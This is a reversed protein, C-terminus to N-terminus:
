RNLAATVVQELTMVQGEAWAMAFTAEDLRARVVAVTRDYDARETLIWTIWPQAEAVSLLRAAQALEQHQIMVAALGVLNLAVGQGAGLAYLLRTSEGFRAAADALDHQELMLLGTDYLLWATSEQDGAERALVLGEAFLDATRQRAGQALALQGLRHLAWAIRRRDDLTRGMALSEEYCSAASRLDSRAMAVDGLSLLLQTTANRDDVVRALTLGETCLTTARASDGRQLALEGLDNLLLVIRRPDGLARALTLSEALLMEARVNDEQVHALNGAGHLAKMRAATNAPPPLDTAHGPKAGGHPPADASVLARELWQRGESLHGRKLWFDTLMGGLRLAVEPEHKMAWALAARLNDHDQELRDLWVLQDSASLQPEAVEALALYYALHRHRLRALEASTELRERAYEHITELMTFRPEGAVGESQRVLSQDLLATLGDLVDISLDGEGNCVTGAAAETWGGVFVALRTFLTQQGGDLVNYSWDITNRLTQQRAPLDRAGGTLLQLRNELRVLLTAPTFLRIRAAALEIALPLGDVRQCIEAVTSANAATLSFTPQVAKAREVFLTVAPARAFADADMREIRDPLALPLVPIQQEGRVRLAARSTILVNLRFCAALLEAVLPAADLVQEFNDLV